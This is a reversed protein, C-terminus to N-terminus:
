FKLLLIIKLILIDGAISPASPSWNIQFDFLVQYGTNSRAVMDLLSVKTLSITKCLKAMVLMICKWILTNAIANPNADLQLNPM